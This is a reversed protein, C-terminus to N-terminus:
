GVASSVQPMMRDMSRYMGVSSAAKLAPRQCDVTPMPTLPLTNPTSPNPRKPECTAATPLAKPMSTTAQLWFRVGSRAASHPAVKTLLSWSKALESM